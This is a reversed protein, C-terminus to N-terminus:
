RHQQDAHHHGGGRLSLGSARLLGGILFRYRRDRRRRGGVGRLQRESLAEEEVRV